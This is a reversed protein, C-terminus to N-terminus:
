QIKRCEEKGFFWLFEWIRFCKVVLIKRSCFYKGCFNGCELANQWMFKKIKFRRVVFFKEIRFCRAM